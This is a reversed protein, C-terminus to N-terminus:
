ATVEEEFEGEGSAGRSEEAAARKALCRRRDFEFFGIGDGGGEAVLFVGRLHIGLFVWHVFGLM